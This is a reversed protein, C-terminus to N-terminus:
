CSVSRDKNRKEDEQDSYYQLVSPDCGVKRLHERALRAEIKAPQFPFEENGMQDYVKPPIKCNRMIFDLCFECLVFSYTTMDLLAGYGNGPTSHYGGSVKIKTSLTDPWDSNNPVKTSHGCWNCVSDPEM